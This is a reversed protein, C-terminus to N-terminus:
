FDQERLWERTIGPKKDIKLSRLIYKGIIDFELNVSKGPNKLNTEQFTHSILAVAFREDELRAITLSVGNVAISGQPVVLKAEAKPLRFWLYHTESITEQYLFETTTDIHGQVIHGDFRGTIQLARELNIKEGTQWKSATTKHLTEQMVEVTLNAAGKETITLCIGNCALSDGVKLTQVVKQCSITLYRKSGKDLVSHLIGTEEIIGTFM